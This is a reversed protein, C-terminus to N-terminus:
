PGSGRQKGKPSRRWIGNPKGGHRGAHDCTVASSIRPASAASVESGTVRTIYWPCMRSKCTTGPTTLPANGCGRTTGASPQALRRSAAPVGSAQSDKAACVAGLRLSLTANANQPKVREEALFSRGAKARGRPCKAEGRRPPQTNRPTQKARTERAQEHTPRSERPRTQRQGSAARGPQHQTPRQRAVRGRTENERGTEKGETDPRRPQRPRSQVRQGRAASPRWYSQEGRLPARSPPPPRLPSM